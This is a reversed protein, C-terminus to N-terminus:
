GAWCATPMAARSGGPGTPRWATQARAGAAAPSSCPPLVLQPTPAVLLYRRWAPAEDTVLGCWTSSGGLLAISIAEGRLLKALARRARASEGYSVVGRQLMRRPLDPQYGAVAAPDAARSAAWASSAATAGGSQLRASTHPGAANPASAVVSLKFTAAAATLLLLAAAALTAGGARRRRDGALHFTRM